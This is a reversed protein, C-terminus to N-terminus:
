VSEQYKKLKSFEGHVLLRAQEPWSTPDISQYQKGANDLIVRLREPTTMSLKEWNTIDTNKLVADIKPGIGEIAQLNESAGFKQDLEISDAEELETVVLNRGSVLADTEGTLSRSAVGETGEDDALADGTIETNQASLADALAAKQEELEANKAAIEATLADNQKQLAANKDTWVSIEAKAAKLDSQLATTQTLATGSSVTAEEFLKSNNKQQAELKEKLNAIEATQARSMGDLKNKEDQLLLLRQEFQEVETHPTATNLQTQLLDIREKLAQNEKQAVHLNNKLSSKELRFFYDAILYGSLATVVIGLSFVLGNSYAETRIAWLLVAAVAVLIIFLFRKM